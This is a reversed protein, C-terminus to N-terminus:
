KGQMAGSNSNMGYLMLGLSITLIKIKNNM